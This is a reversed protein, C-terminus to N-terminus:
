SNRSGNGAYTIDGALLDIGKRVSGSMVHLERELTRMSRLAYADADTCRAQSDVEAQQMIKTARQEADSVTVEAREHAERVLESQDLRERYEEDAQSKIRRADSVAQNIIQDKRDLVEQAGRVEQPVALRLQDLLEMAKKKDTLVSGTVPMSKSTTILTEL